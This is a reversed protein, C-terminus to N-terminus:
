ALLEEVAFYIKQNTNIHTAEYIPLGFVEGSPYADEGVRIKDGKTVIPEFTSNVVKDYKLKYIGPSVRSDNLVFWENKEALLDLSDIGAKEMIQELNKDSLNGNEKILYLAAGYSAISSSGGPVKAMLKKINFVLRHFPTYASKDASDTVKRSKNRNGKADIIGRKFAETKEFPTVLLSIFRFTYVLDGARKLLGVM